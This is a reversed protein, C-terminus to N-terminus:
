KFFVTGELNVRSSAGGGSFDLSQINVAFRTTDRELYNLFAAINRVSGETVAVFAVQGPSSAGPESATGQFDFTLSLSHSRATDNIFKPFGILEDQSPLLADMKAQLGGVTVADAKLKVLSDIEVSRRAITARDDLIQDAKASLSQSMFYFAGAFLAFSGVIIGANVLVHRRFNDAM